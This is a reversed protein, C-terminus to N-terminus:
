RVNCQKGDVGGNRSHCDFFYYGLLWFEFGFEVHRISDFTTSLGIVVVTIRILRCVLVIGSKIEPVTSSGHVLAVEGGGGGGGRM